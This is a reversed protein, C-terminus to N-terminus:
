GTASLDEEEEQVNGDPYAIVAGQLMARFTGGAFPGEATGKGVNLLTCASNVPNVLLTLGEFGGKAQVAEFGERLEVQDQISKAM